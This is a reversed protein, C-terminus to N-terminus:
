GSINAAYAWEYFRTCAHACYLLFIAWSWGSSFIYISTYVCPEMLPLALGYGHSYFPFYYNDYFDDCHRLLIEILWVISCITPNPGNVCTHVLYQKWLANTGRRLCVGLSVVCVFYQLGQQVHTSFIIIWSPCINYRLWHTNPFQM